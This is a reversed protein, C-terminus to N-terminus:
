ISPKGRALQLACPTPRAYKVKSSTEAMGRDISSALQSHVNQTIVRSHM